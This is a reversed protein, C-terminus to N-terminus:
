SCLVVSFLAGGCAFDNYMGTLFEMGPFPHVVSEHDQRWITSSEAARIGRVIQDAKIEAATFKSSDHARDRRLSRDENIFVERATRYDAASSFTM